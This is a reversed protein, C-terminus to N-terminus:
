LPQSQRKVFDEITSFYREKGIIMLDNHGSNPIILLEKEKAGSKEYLERGERAPIIEDNEGHIILTPITIDKIKGKNMFRTDELRSMEFPNLYRQILAFNGAAGSEVILGKIESQYHYATEIASISGLSRGMVFYAPNYGKENIMKKFGRYIERCDHFLNTITPKGDSVGYGRYDAAFFNMGRSLYYVALWDQDLVTEGNGHFYLITPFRKSAKFFRCGIKIGSEVEIFHFPMGETEPPPSNFHYQAYAVPFIIELIEQKDMFYLISDSNM